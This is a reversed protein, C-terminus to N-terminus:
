IKNSNFRNTKNTKWVAWVIALWVVSRISMAKVSHLAVAGNSFYIAGLFILVIIHAAFVITTFKLAQRHNAWIMVGVFMGVIGMIVNYILLPTLVIYEPNTIGLLVQLGEVVTLLSFLVAVVAAIKIFVNKNLTRSM